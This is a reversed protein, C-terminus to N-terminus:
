DSGVEKIRLGYKKIKYRIMGVTIGLGRAARTRVFNCEQFAHIIEDKEIERLKKELSEM